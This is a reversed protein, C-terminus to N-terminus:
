ELLCYTRGQIHHWAPYNLRLLNGVSDGEFDVEKGGVVVYMQGRQLGHGVSAAPVCCSGFPVFGGRYTAHCPVPSEVVVSGEEQRKGLGVKALHSDGM